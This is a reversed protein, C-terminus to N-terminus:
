SSRRVRKHIGAPTKEVDTSDALESMLSSYLIDRDAPYQTYFRTLLVEYFEPPKTFRRLSEPECNQRQHELFAHDLTATQPSAELANTMITCGSSQGDAVGTLFGNVYALRTPRDWSLWGNGNYPTSSAPASSAPAAVQLKQNNSCSTFVIATFLVTSVLAIFEACNPSFGAWRPNELRFIQTKEKTKIPM